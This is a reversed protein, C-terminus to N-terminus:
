AVGPQGGQHERKMWMRWGTHGTVKFGFSGYWGVLQDADMLGGAPAEPEDDADDDDWCDDDDGAEDDVELFLDVGMEDALRTIITMAQKGAGQGPTHADLTHIECTNPGRYFMNCSVAVGKLAEEARAVFAAIREYDADDAQEILTLSARISETLNM